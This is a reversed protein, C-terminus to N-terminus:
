IIKIGKDKIDFTFNRLASHLLVSESKDEVVKVVETQGDKIM